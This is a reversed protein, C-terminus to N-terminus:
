TKQGDNYKQKINHQKQQQKLYSREMYGERATWSARDTSWTLM